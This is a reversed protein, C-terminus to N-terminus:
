PASAPVIADLGADIYQGGNTQRCHIAIVNDGELLAKADFEHPEYDTTYGSRSLVRQGNLYVVVDEDHHMRLAVRSPLPGTLAFSRRLWIDSTTWPTRVVAGPTERRGFGGAAQQWSRDDFDVAWWRDAPRATTIRWEVAEHESTPILSVTRPPIPMPAWGGARTQDRRAYKSWVDDRYLLQL